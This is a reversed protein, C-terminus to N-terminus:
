PGDALKSFKLNGLNVKLQDGKPFLKFIFSGNTPKGQHKNNPDTRFKQNKSILAKLKNNPGAEFDLKQYYKLQM